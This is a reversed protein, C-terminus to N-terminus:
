LFILTLLSFSWNIIMTCLGGVTDTM